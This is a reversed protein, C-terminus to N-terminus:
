ARSAAANGPVPGTACEGSPPCDLTELQALLATAEQRFSAVLEDDTLDEAEPASVNLLGPWEPPPRNKLYFTQASVSGEMASRYLAAAVNQSLLENVRQFLKQFALDHELTASVVPLAIKLQLCASAPSAGRSLLLLYKQQEDITLLTLDVPIKLLNM